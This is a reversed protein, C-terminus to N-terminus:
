FARGVAIGPWIGVYGNNALLTLTPRVVFGGSSQFQYGVAFTGMAGSDIRDDDGGGGPTLTAGVGLYLAHTEGLVLSGYLPVTLVVGWPGPFVGIGGGVAFSTTVFREYSASLVLGRGAAEGLILEPRQERLQAAASGASLAFVTVALLGVARARRV